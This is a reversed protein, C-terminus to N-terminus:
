PAKMDADSRAGGYEDKLVREAVRLTRWAVEISAMAPVNPEHTHQIHKKVCKSRM